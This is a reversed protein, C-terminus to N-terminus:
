SELCVSYEVHFWINIKECSQQCRTGQCRTVVIIKQLFIGFRDIGDFRGEGLTRLDISGYRAFVDGEVIHVTPVVHKDFTHCGAVKQTATAAVADIASLSIWM